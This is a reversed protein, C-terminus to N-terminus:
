GPVSLASMQNGAESALIVTTPGRKIRFLVWGTEQEGTAIPRGSFAPRNNVPEPDTAELTSNEFALFSYTVPGRDVSIRISVELGDSTWRHEVVEWRGSRREDPSVFPLGSGTTSTATPTPSPAPVPAPRTTGMWILVAAAVGVLLLLAPLVSRRPAFQGISLANTVPSNPDQGMQPGATTPADASLPPPSWGIPPPNDPGTPGNPHNISM